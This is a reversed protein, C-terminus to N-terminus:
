LEVALEPYIGILSLLPLKNRYDFIFFLDRELRANIDAGAFFSFRNLMDTSAVYLGPKIRQLFNNALTYNDVRIYPFVTLSSFAGSYKEEDFNNVNYDDYNQLSDINFNQIDGNPKNKGLPPDVKWVYSNDDTVKEQNKSNIRFIKYGTSTYGAYVIDGNENVNPM